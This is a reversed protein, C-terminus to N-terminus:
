AGVRQQIDHNKAAGTGLPHLVDELWARGEWLELGVRV